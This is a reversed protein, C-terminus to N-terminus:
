KSKGKFLGDPNSEILDAIKKFKWRDTDNLDILSTISYTADNSYYSGSNDQLGAWKSVTQPLTSTKGGFVFFRKKKHKTIIKSKVALDCLVGLCCYHTNSGIQQALTGRGQKYKGSRLATVWKKIVAKQKTTM